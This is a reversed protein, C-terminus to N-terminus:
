ITTATPVFPIESPNRRNNIIFTHIANHKNIPLYIHNNKTPRQMKAQINHRPGCSCCTLNYFNYLLNKEDIFPIQKEEGSVVVVVVVDIAPHGTQDTMTCRTECKGKRNAKAVLTKCLM